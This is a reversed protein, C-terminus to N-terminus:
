ASWGAIDLMATTIRTLEERRTTYPPMAYLLRGFPRLFVGSTKAFAHVRATDLPAKMEIM